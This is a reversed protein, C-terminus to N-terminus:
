VGVDAAANRAFACARLTPERGSRIIKSVRGVGSIDTATAALSDFAQRYVHHTRSAITVHTTAYMHSMVGVDKNCGKCVYEKAMAGAVRGIVHYHRTVDDYLLNLRKSSEVTGEFLISDCYLGDYVVIKYDRFHEQFRTLEPMDAGNSLDICTTKLLRDVVAHIKRGKRYAIYNPDDNVKAIAIILAHALCNQEAKVEIISKKLFAMVSLQRGKTNIGGGFVVPMKVSHVTVILRDM